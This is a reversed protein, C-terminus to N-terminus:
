RRYRPESGATENAPRMKGGRLRRIGMRGSCRTTPSVDARYDCKAEGQQRVRGCGEGDDEDRFVQELGEGDGGADGDRKLGNATIIREGGGRKGKLKM